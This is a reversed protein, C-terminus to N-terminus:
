MVSLETVRCLGLKRNKSKDKSLILVWSVLFFVFCSIKSALIM